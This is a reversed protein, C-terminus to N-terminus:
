ISKVKISRITYLAYGNARHILICEKQLMKHLLEISSRYWIPLRNRDYATGIFHDQESWIIYEVGLSTLKKALQASDHYEPYHIWDQFLPDAQLFPRQLHFADSMEFLLITSDKPITQHIGKYLEYYPLKALLYSERSDHSNFPPSTFGLVPFLQSSHNLRISAVFMLLWMAPFIIPSTYSISQVGWALILCLGPLAPMYYRWFSATSFFPIIAALAILSLWFVLSPPKIRLVCIFLLILLIPWTIYEPNYYHGFRRETIMRYPLLILGRFTREQGPVVELNSILSSKEAISRSPESISSFLPWLPNHHWITNRMYWPSSFILCFLFCLIPYKWQIKRSPIHMLLMLTLLIFTFPIASYKIGSAIGCCIGVIILWQPKKCEHWTWLGYFGLFLYFTTASDQMATGLFSTFIPQASFILASFIGVKRNKFFRFGFQFMAGALLLSLVWAILQSLTEGQLVLGLLYLMEMHGPFAGWLNGDQCFIKSKQLYSQPNALHYALSDADIAPSLAVIFGHLFIWLLLGIALNELIDVTSYSDKIKRLLLSLTELLTRIESSLILLFIMLVFIWLLPHIWGLLGAVLVLPSILGLGIPVAFLLNEEHDIPSCIRKLIFAGIGYAAGMIIFLYFIAILHQSISTLSYYPLHKFISRFFAINTLLFIALPVWLIKHCKFLYKSFINM